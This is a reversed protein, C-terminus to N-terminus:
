LLPLYNSPKNLNGLSHEPQSYNTDEYSFKERKDKSCAVSPIILGRVKTKFSWDRVTIKCFQHSGSINNQVPIM